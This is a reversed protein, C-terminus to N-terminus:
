QGRFVELRVFRDNVDVYSWGVVEAQESYHTEHLRLFPEGKGALSYVRQTRVGEFSNRGMPREAEYPALAAILEDTTLTEHTVGWGCPVPDYGLDGLRSLATTSFEATVVAKM